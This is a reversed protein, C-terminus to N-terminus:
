KVLVVKQQFLKGNEPQINVIYIGANWKAADIKLDIRDNGSPNKSQYVTEGAINNVKIQAGLSIASSQANISLISGTFGVQWPTSTQSELGTGTQYYVTMTLYDVSATQDYSTNTIKYQFGFGPTNIQTATWAYGWTDTSSGYTQITPTDFWNLTTAHNNGYTTGNLSLLLTSDHIGGGPSNVRQLIDLKVGTVTATSPISFNFGAFSAINSYYCLFNNCTPYQALDAYAPNNDIAVVGSLNGWSIGTGSTSYLTSTAPGASQSIGISPLAIFLIFSKFIKKM